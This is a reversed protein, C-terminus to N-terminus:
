LAVVDAKKDCVEVRLLHVLVFQHVKDDVKHLLDVLLDALHLQRDVGSSANHSLFEELIHTQRGSQDNRTRITM